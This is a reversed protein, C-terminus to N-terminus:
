FPVDLDDDNDDIEPEQEPMPATSFPDIRSQIIGILADYFANRDSTDTYEKNGVKVQKVAPIKDFNNNAKSYKKTVKEGGNRLAGHVYNKGEFESLYPTIRILGPSEVNALSNYLDRAFLSYRSSQLIYTKDQDKLYFKIKEVPQGQYEEDVAEIKTLIGEVFNYLEIKNNQKHKIQGTEKDVSLYFTNEGSNTGLGM